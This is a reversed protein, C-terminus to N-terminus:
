LIYKITSFSRKTCLIIPINDFSFRHYVIDTNSDDDKSNKIESFINGISKSLFKAKAESECWKQIVTESTPSLNATKENVLFRKYIREAKEQPLVSAEIDIGLEDSDSLACAVYGCSHSISFKIDSNVFFPKGSDEKSFILKSPDIRCPLHSFLDYLLALAFFSECIAFDNKRNSINEFYEQNETRSFLMEIAQELVYKNLSDPMKACTLAIM